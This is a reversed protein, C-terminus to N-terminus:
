RSFAAQLQAFSSQIAPLAARVAAEDGDDVADLFRTLAVSVKPGAEAVAARTTETAADSVAYGGLKAIAADFEALKARAEPVAAQAQELSGGGAAQLAQGLGLLAARAATLDATARTATDTTGTTPTVADGATTGAADTATATGVGDDVGCVALGIARAKADARENLDDIADDAAGLADRFDGGAAITRTMERIGDQRQDLLELAAAFDDKLDDPATLDRLKAIEEDSADLGATLYAVVDDNSSSETPRDLADITDKSTQCIADATSRFDDAGPADSGDDGGCGAVLAIAGVVCLGALSRRRSLLM